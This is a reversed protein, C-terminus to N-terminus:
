NCDNNDLGGQVYLHFAIQMAYDLEEIYLRQDVIQNRLDLEIEKYLEVFSEPLPTKFTYKYSDNEKAPVTIISFYYDPNSVRVVDSPNLYPAVPQWDKEKESLKTGYWVAEGDIYAEVIRPDFGKAYYFKYNHM